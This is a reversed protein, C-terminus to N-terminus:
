SGSLVAEDGDLRRRGDGRRLLMINIPLVTFFRLSPTRPQVTCICMNEMDQADHESMSQKKLFSWIEEVIEFRRFRPVNNM